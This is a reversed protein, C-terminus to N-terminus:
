ELSITGRFDTSGLINYSHSLTIRINWFTDSLCLLPPVQVKELSLLWVRGGLNSYCPWLCGTVRFCLVEGWYETETLAAGFGWENGAALGLVLQCLGLQLQHCIQSGVALLWVQSDRGERQRSPCISWAVWSYAPIRPEKHYSIVGVWAVIYFTQRIVHSKVIM